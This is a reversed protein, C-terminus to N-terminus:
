IETCQDSWSSKKRKRQSKSLMLTSYTKAAVSVNASPFSGPSLCVASSPPYERAISLKTFLDCACTLCSERVGVRALLALLRKNWTSAFLPAMLNHLKDLDHAWVTTDPQTFAANPWRNLTFRSSGFSLSKQHAQFSPPNVSLILHTSTPHFLPTTSRGQM